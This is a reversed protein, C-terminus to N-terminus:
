KVSLVGAAVIAATEARLVLDGLSVLQWGSDVALEHEKKSFGGESGILLTIETVGSLDLSSVNIVDLDTQRELTFLLKQGSIDSTLFDALLKGDALEMLGARESQKSAELVIKALRGRKAGWVRDVDLQSYESQIPMFSNIGLEVAKQVVLENLSMQKLLCFALNVKRLTSAVAKEVLVEMVVATSRESSLREIKAKVVLEGNFLVIENGAGLRLVSRMHKAEHENILISHGVILNQDTFFRRM